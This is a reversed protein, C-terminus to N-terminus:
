NMWIAIEGCDHEIERIRRENFLAAKRLVTAHETDGAAEAADAARRLNIPDKPLRSNRFMKTIRKSNHGRRDVTPRM